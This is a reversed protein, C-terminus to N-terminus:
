RSAPLPDGMRQYVDCITGGLFAARTAEPLADLAPRYLEIPDVNGEDHPFDSSFVLMEPVETIADMGDDGLGPLPTAKVNRRLLEGAPRSGEWPGLAEVTALAELRSVFWPLWSAWLESLLVTLEPVRDLVGGFMLAAVLTEAGATRRSNAFRLYGSVGAGHPTTWGADGWGDFLLHTNGIHVIGIMGLEVAARWFRDNDPHAPSRGGIPTTSIFFARSGRERMRRLERISFDVDPQDILTVPSLRDAQGGVHEALTDNCIRVAAQRDDADELFPIGTAVPLSYGGPNVLAFDIGVSDMWAVREDASMGRLSAQASMTPEPSQKNPDPLSALLAQREDDPTARWLDGAISEVGLDLLPMDGIFRALPHADAALDPEYHSDVDIVTM